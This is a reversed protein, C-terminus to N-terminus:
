REPHGRSVVSFDLPGYVTGDPFSILATGFLAATIGAAELVGTLRQTAEERSLVPKRKIPPLFDPFEPENDHWEVPPTM